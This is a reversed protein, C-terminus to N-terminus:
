EIVEDAAVQLTLPVTLGLAKATKLNIVLEFKTPQMVPLDAPKAGKLINAVYIGGQRYGDLFHPGYSVLGGDVAFERQNYIAPLAHDEALRVLRARRSNLFPDQGVLVAQAGRQAFRTFAAEIESDSSATLMVPKVGLRGAAELVEQEQSTAMPYNPNILVGITTAKPAMERLIELRKAELASGLLSVGTVNGGPRNISAVIGAVIPDAASIFVIPITSTASKAARAPDTGGFAFIVAVQRAVLDAALGPLRDYQGEAWRAEIRVNQGEVFGTESLGRRFADVFSTWPAASASSLLGVVPVAQQAHASLSICIPAAAAGGLLTIFDRRKM